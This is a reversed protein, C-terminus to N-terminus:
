DFCYYDFHFIHLNNLVVTSRTQLAPMCFKCYEMDYSECTRMLTYTPKINVFHLVGELKKCCFLVCKIENKDKHDQFTHM